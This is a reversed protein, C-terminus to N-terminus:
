DPLDNFDIEGQNMGPLAPPNDMNGGIPTYSGQLRRQTQIQAKKQSIFSRLVADKEAPTKNPDGLTVKLSEGEKQTFQAGFTQRLLPLIQNDVLSIYESRAIARDRPNLGLERRASDYIQGATTYTAKKGLNSLQNVTDELQPLTAEMEFLDGAREGELSGLTKAAAVDSQFDPMHEPKPTVDYSESIGGLPNLRVQQGGLNLTKDARKVTLFNLQEDPTLNKYFQYSRVDSPDEGLSQLQEMAQALRADAFDQGPIFKKNQFSSIAARSSDEVTPSFRNALIQEIRGGQAPPKAGLWQQIQGSRAKPSGQFLDLISSM